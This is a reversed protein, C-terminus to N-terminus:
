NILTLIKSAAGAALQSAGTDNPHVYSLGDVDNVAYDDSTPPYTEYIHKGSLDAYLGSFTSSGKLLTILNQRGDEFHTGDGAYNPANAYIDNRPIPLMTLTTAGTARVANHFSVKSALVHSAPYLCLDNASFFEMVIVQDYSAKNVNIYSIL